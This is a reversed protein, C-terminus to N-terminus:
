ELGNCQSADNKDLFDKKPEICNMFDNIKNEQIAKILVEKADTKCQDLDDHNKVNKVDPINETLCNKVIEIAEMKENSNCKVKSLDALLM